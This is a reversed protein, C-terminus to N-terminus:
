YRLTSVGCKANKNCNMTTFSIYLQWLVSYETIISKYLRIVTVYKLIILKYM